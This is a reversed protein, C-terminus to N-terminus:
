SSRTKGPTGPPRITHELALRRTARAFWDDDSLLTNRDFRTGDRHLGDDRHDPHLALTAPAIGIKYLTAGV